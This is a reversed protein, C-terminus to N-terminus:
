PHNCSNYHVKVRDMSIGSPNEIGSRLNDPLGTNNPNEVRQFPDFKGYFLEKDETHQAIELKGQIVEKDEALQATEFKGQLLEEDDAGALNNAERQVPEFKGQLTEDELNEQRQATKPMNGNVMVQFTGMRKAQPSKNIADRTQRQWVAEPRNDVFSLAKSGGAQIASAEHAASQKKQEPAKDTHTNMPKWYSTEYSWLLYFTDPM